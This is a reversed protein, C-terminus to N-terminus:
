GTTSEAGYGPRRILLDRKGTIEPDYVQSQWEREPVPELAISVFKPDCDLADAVAETVNRVLRARTEEDVDLPFHKVNVHPM